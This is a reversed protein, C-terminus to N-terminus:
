EGDADEAPGLGPRRKLTRQATRMGYHLPSIRRRILELSDAWVPRDSRPELHLYGYIREPKRVSDTVLILENRGEALLPKDVFEVHGDAYEAVMGWKGRGVNNIFKARWAYSDGPESTDDDPIVFTVFQTGSNADLRWLPSQMWVNVSDGTVSLVYGAMDADSADIRSQLLAITNDYVERFKEPHHAYWDYASDLAAEDVGHKALVSAKLWRRASDSRYDYRNAQMVAEGIHIDALLASMEDPQIINDPVKKCGGVIMMLAVAVAALLKARSM